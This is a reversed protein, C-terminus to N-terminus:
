LHNTFFHFINGSEVGEADEGLREVNALGEFVIFLEEVGAVDLLEVAIAEALVSNQQDGVLMEEREVESGVVVVDMALNLYSENVGHSGRFLGADVLHNKVEHAVIVFPVLTTVM